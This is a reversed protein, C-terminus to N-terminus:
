DFLNAVMRVLYSNNGNMAKFVTVSEKHEPHLATCVYGGEIKKVKLGSARLGKIMAQVTPKSLIKSEYKM